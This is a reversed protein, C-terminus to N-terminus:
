SSIHDFSLAARKRRMEELMQVVWRSFVAVGITTISLRCSFVQVSLRFKRCGWVAAAM